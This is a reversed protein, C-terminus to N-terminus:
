ERQALQALPINMMTQRGMIKMLLSIPEDPPVASPVTNVSVATFGTFPGAAILVDQGAVVAMDRTADYVGELQEGVLQVLNEIPVSVPAGLRGLIAQIGYCNKLASQEADTLARPRASPSPVGVFLYRTLLPREIARKIKYRTNHWRALVPLYTSFGAKEAARMAFWEQGFGTFVAFWCREWLAEVPPPSTPNELPFLRRVAKPPRPQASTKLAAAM